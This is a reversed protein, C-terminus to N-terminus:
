DASLTERRADHWKKHNNILTLFLSAQRLRPTRFTVGDNETQESLTRMKWWKQVCKEQKRMPEQHHKVKGILSANLYRESLVEGGRGGGGGRGVWDKGRGTDGGAVKEKM